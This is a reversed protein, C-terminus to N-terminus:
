NDKVSISIVEDTYYDAGSGSFILKFDKNKLAPFVLIGSDTVGPQLEDKVEDYDADYNSTREYQSKGQVISAGYFYLNAAESGENQVTVYLRTEKEAFEVKDVRVTLGDKTWEADSPTITKITPSFADIYNSETISYASILPCTVTGGLLNHGEYTDTVVGKVLVYEEEKVSTNAADYIMVSHDLAEDTYMQFVMGDNSDLINFIKGYLDVSRGQYASVDSFLNAYEEKPILNSSDYTSGDNYKSGGGFLVALVAILIVLLIIWKLKGGKVRKRCNPCVKADFPIETKCYKCLKTEPKQKAMTTCRRRESLRVMVIMNYDHYSKIDITM